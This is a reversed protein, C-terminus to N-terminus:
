EKDTFVVLRNSYTKLNEDYVGACAIINLHSTGNNSTFVESADDNKDYTRLERVVFSITVGNEDQIYIKDGPTLTHLNDFVSTDGNKWRGYHGTIVASGDDGPRPGFAFWGVDQSGSPSEMAGNKAVGMSDIKTDINIKPIKLRMFTEVNVHELLPVANTNIENVITIKNSTINNENQIPATSLSASTYKLSNVEFAWFFVAAVSIAALFIM